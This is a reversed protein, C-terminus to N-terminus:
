AAAAAALDLTLLETAFDVPTRRWPIGAKQLLRHIGTNGALMTAELTGTGRRRAAVVGARLLSRGIGRGQLRDAVAVGVEEVGPRSAELCLHGVIEDTKREVAVFGDATKGDPTAFHAAQAPSIGRTAGMFRTARSEPSLAEYFAELAAADEGRVRRILIPGQEMRATQEPRTPPTLASGGKATWGM